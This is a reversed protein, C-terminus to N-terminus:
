EVKNLKGQQHIHSLGELIERFLRWSRRQDSYLEGSDILQRLTSFICLMLYQRTSDVKDYRKECFEMQIYLIQITHNEVPVKTTVMDSPMDAGSEEPQTENQEFIIDGSSNATDEEVRPIQHIFKTDSLIAVDEEDEEFSSTSDSQHKRVDAGLLGSVSWEVSEMESPHISPINIDDECSDDAFPDKKTALNVINEDKKKPKEKYPSQLNANIDSETGTLPPVDLEDGTATSSLNPKQSIDVTTEIWSNYYRVVNEHNLRSLLKVERTIRKNFQKSKPDLLIRKIAYVGGDLQNRVKLM